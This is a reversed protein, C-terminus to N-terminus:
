LQFISRFHAHVGKLNALVHANGGFFVTLDKHEGVLVSIDLGGKDLELGGRTGNLESFAVVDIGIALSDRSTGDLDTVEQLRSFALGGGDRGDGRDTGSTQVVGVSDLTVNDDVAKAGGGVGLGDVGGQSVGQEGRDPGHVGHVDGHGLDPKGIREEFTPVESPM